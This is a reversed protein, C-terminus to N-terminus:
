NAIYYFYNKNIKEFRLIQFLFNDTEMEEKSNFYFGYSNDTLGDFLYFIGKKTKVASYINLEQLSTLIKIQEKSFSDKVNNEIKNSMPFPSDEPITYKWYLEKEKYLNDIRQIRGYSTFIDSKNGSILQTLKEFKKLNENLYNELFDKKDRGKELFQNPMNMATKQPIQYQNCFAGFIFNPVESANHFTDLAWVNERKLPRIDWKSFPKSNILFTELSVSDKEVSKMLFEFIDVDYKKDKEPFEQGICIGTFCLLLIIITKKFM